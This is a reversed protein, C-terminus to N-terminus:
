QISKIAAEAQVADFSFVLPDTAGDDPVVIKPVHAAEVDAIRGDRLFHYLRTCQDLGDFLGPACYYTGSPLRMKKDSHERVTVRGSGADVVGFYATSGDSRLVMAYESHDTVDEVGGGVESANQMTLEMSRGTTRAPGQISGLDVSSAAQSAAIPIVIVRQRGDHVLYLETAESQRLGKIVFPDDVDFVNDRLPGNPVLITYQHSAHDPWVIRGTAQIAAEGIISCTYSTADTLIVPYHSRFCHADVIEDFKKWEVSSGGQVLATSQVTLVANIRSVGAPFTGTLVVQGAANTKGVAPPRSGLLGVPIGVVPTGAPAAVTVTVTVVRAPPPPDSQALAACAWIATAVVLVLIVKATNM